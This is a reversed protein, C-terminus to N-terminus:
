LPDHGDIIVSTELTACVVSATPRREPERDWCLELLDWFTAESLGLNGSPRYAPPIGNVIDRFIHGCANNIRSAYPKELYLFEYGVCGLAHVDSAMTGEVPTNNEVLEFALYRVTGPYFTTTDLDDVDLIRALGFDCILPTGNEDILVNKPKLDGHVVRCSHLYQLGSSVGQFLQLRETGSLHRRRIFEAGDGNACWRTVLSGYPCWREELTGLITLVNPHDLRLGTEVQRRMRRLVAQLTGVSNVVKIAFTGGKIEQKYVRSYPGIYVPESSPCPIGSFDRHTCNDKAQPSPSAPKSPLGSLAITDSSDLSHSSDSDNRTCIDSIDGTNRNPYSMPKDIEVVAPTQEATRTQVVSAPEPLDPLMTPTIVSSQSSQYGMVDLIKARARSLRGRHPVEHVTTSQIEPQTELSTITDQLM